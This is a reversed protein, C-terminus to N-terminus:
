KAGEIRFVATEFEQPQYRLVWGIPNQQTGSVAMVDPLLPVVTEHFDDLLELRYADKVRRVTAAFAEPGYLNHVCLIAGVPLRGGHGDQGNLGDGGGWGEDWFQVDRGSWFRMKIPVRQPGYMENSFIPAGPAAKEKVLLAAAKIDGFVGRQWSIVALSFGWCYLACLAVGILWAPRRPGLRSALQASGVGAYVVMFPLLPLLYREQFSQFVSQMTLLALACYAFMWRHVRDRSVIVGWVALAFIPYTFFYPSVIVFSEFLNWYNVAATFVGGAARDAVQGGHAFLQGRGAVFWAALGLWLVQSLIAWLMPGKGQRRWAIRVAGFSIFVLPILLVGQYRTLCAAVTLATAAALLHDARYGGAKRRRVAESMAWVASYFLLAFLADTMMRIGWRLAMPSVLYWLCAFAAARRGERQAAESGRPALGPALGRAAAYIPLVILSSAAVSVLRASWEAARGFGVAISLWRYLPPWFAQAGQSGFVALIGDTYEAHNVNFLGLRALLALLACGGAVRFAPSQAPIAGTQALPHASAIFDFPLVPQCGTAYPLCTGM